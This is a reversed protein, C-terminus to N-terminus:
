SERLKCDSYYVDDGTKASFSNGEKDTFTVYLIGEDESSVMYSEVEDWKLAINYGGWSSFYQFRENGELIDIRTYILKGQEIEFGYEGVPVREYAKVEFTGEIPVITKDTALPKLAFTIGDDDADADWNEPYNCSIELHTVEKSLAEALEGSDLNGNLDGFMEESFSTSFLEPLSEDYMITSLSWFAELYPNDLFDEDENEKVYDAFDKIVKKPITMIGLQRKKKDLYTIELEDFDQTILYTRVSIGLTFINLFFKSTVNETVVFEMKIINDSKSIDADTFFTINEDNLMEFEKELKISDSSFAKIVKGSIGQTTKEENTDSLLSYGGIVLVLLVVLVIPIITKKEM